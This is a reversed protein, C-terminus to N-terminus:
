AARQGSFCVSVTDVPDLAFVIEEDPTIWLPPVISGTIIRQGARLREDRAALTDAVHRVIAILEGTLAQPDATRAIEVGNRIVRARLGDLRGGARTTDCRGFIVHRQYINGALIAEVEDPPFDVDALEIAPGIGAIAAEIDARSANGGLDAGLHVAIEPEAAPKKWADLAIAAGSQLIARETLFGVLPAELSMKALAAPAGFGVKWGICREGALVRANLLARQAEMGRVVRSDTIGQSM